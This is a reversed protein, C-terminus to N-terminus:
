VLATVLVSASLLNTIAAMKFIQYLTMGESPITWKSSMQYASTFDYLFM